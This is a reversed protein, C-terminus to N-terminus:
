RRRDVHVLYRLDALESTWSRDTRHRRLMAKVDSGRGHSVPELHAVAKGRRVITFAERRHEVADLLDSFHRAADTAHVEPM